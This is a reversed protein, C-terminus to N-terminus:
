FNLKIYIVKLHSIEDELIPEPIADPQNVTEPVEDDWFGGIDDAWEEELTKNASCINTDTDQNNQSIKLCTSMGPAIPLNDLM